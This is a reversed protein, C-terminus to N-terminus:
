QLQKSPKCYEPHPKEPGLDPVLPLLQAEIKFCFLLFVKRGQRKENWACYSTALCNPIWNIFLLPLNFIHTSFTKEISCFILGKKQIWLRLGALKCRNLATFVKFEYSYNPKLCTEISCNRWGQSIRVAPQSVLGWNLQADWLGKLLRQKHLPFKSINEIVM